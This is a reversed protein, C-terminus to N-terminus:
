IVIIWRLLVSSDVAFEDGYGPVSFAPHYSTQATTTSGLIVLNDSGDQVSITTSPITKSTSLLYRFLSSNVYQLSFYQYLMYLRVFHVYRISM